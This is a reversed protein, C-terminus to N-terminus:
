KSSLWYWISESRRIFNYTPISFEHVRKTSLPWLFINWEVRTQHVWTNSPYHCIKAVNVLNIEKSHHHLPVINPHRWMYFPLRDNSHHEWLLAYSTQSDLRTKFYSHIIHRKVERWRINNSLLLFIREQLFTVTIPQALAMPLLWYSVLINTTGNMLTYMTWEQKKWKKCEIKPVSQLSFSLIYVYKWYYTNNM